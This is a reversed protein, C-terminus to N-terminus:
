MRYYQGGFFLIDLTKSKALVKVLVICLFLFLLSLIPIVVGYLLFQNQLDGLSFVDPFVNIVLITQMVYIGLTLRGYVSIRDLWKKNSIHNYLLTVGFIVCLCGAIGILYKFFVLDWQSSLTDINIPLYNPIGFRWQVFYLGMFLILFLVFCIYSKSYREIINYKRLFYGIWFYPFLQNIQLTSAKPILFLLVCSIVFLLMDNIPIKKIFYMLVYYIFLVKLFWSNGIIEDRFNEQNRVLYLYIICIITCSVIPLLLQRMKKLLFPVVEQRFSSHVFYGSVLIFLPMNVSYIGKGTEPHIMMVVHRFIVLYMVLLRVLDIYVLRNKSMM